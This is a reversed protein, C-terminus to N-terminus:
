ITLENDSIDNKNNEKEPKEPADFYKHNAYSFLLLTAAMITSSYETQMETGPIFFVDGVTDNFLGSLAKATHAIGVGGSFKTLFSSNKWFDGIKSM